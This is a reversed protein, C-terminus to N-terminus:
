LFLWDEYDEDDWGEDGGGSTQEERQPARTQDHADRGKEDDWPDLGIM